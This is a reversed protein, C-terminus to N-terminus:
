AAPTLKVFKKVLKREGIESFMMTVLGENEETVTGIGFKAHQFKNGVGMVDTAVSQVNQKAEVVIPANQVVPASVEEVEETPNIAEEIEAEVSAVVEQQQSKIWNWDQSPCEIYCSVIFQGDKEFVYTKTSMKKTNYGRDLYVRKMDGKIWLKGKLKEALQELTITTM